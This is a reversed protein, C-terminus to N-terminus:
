QLKLEFCGCKPITWTSEAWYTSTDSTASVTHEGAPLIQTVAAANTAVGCVPSGTTYHETLTGASSGDVKVYVDGETGVTTYVTLEGTGLLECASVPVPVYDDDSSGSDFLDCGALAFLMWLISIGKLYKM